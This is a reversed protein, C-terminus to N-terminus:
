VDWIEQLIVPMHDECYVADKDDVDVAWGISHLTLPGFIM